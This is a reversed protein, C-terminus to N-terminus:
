RAVLQAVAAAAPEIVDLLARPFLGLLVALVLLPVVAWLEPGHVDRMGTATRPRLAAATGGDDTPRSSLAM